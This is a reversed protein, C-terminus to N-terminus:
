SEPREARPTPSRCTPPTAATRTSCPSTARRSSTRSCADMSVGGFTTGLKSWKTVGHIDCPVTQFPLAQFEESTLERGQGVTGDIRFGWADTEIHPTPGATLM